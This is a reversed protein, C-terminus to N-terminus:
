SIAKSKNTSQNISLSSGNETHSNKGQTQCHMQNRQSKSGEESYVVEVQSERTQAQNRRAVM